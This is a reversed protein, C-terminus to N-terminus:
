GYVRERVGRYRMRLIKLNFHSATYQLTYDDTAIYVECKLKDRLLLSLALVEIDAESLKELTGIRAATKRVLEIYRKSPDEIVLRGASTLTEMVERSHEDKVESIVSNTTYIAGQAMRVIGTIFASTDAVVVKGTPYCGQTYDKM